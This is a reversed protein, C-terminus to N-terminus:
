PKEEEPLGAIVEHAERLDRAGALAERAIRRASALSPMPGSLECYRELFRQAARHAPWVEIREPLPEVGLQWDFAQGGMIDRAETALLIRDALKVEAHVKEPWPYALGFAASGAKMHRECLERYFAFEPSAKLSSPLDPLMCEDLEHLLGHKATFRDTFCRSVLVCHQAITYGKVKAQGCFRTKDSLSHAVTAIDFWEPKPSFLDVAAGSLAQIFASSM